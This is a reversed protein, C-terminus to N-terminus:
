EIQWGAKLSQWIEDFQQQEYERLVGFQEDSLNQKAIRLYNDKYDHLATHMKEALFQREETTASAISNATNQMLNSFEQKQELKTLLLTNKTSDSLNNNSLRSYFDNMQHQEYASDKLLDYKKVEEPKLLQAIKRDVEAVMNQQKEIMAKLEADSTFYGVNTTGLIRERETLLAQVKERDQNSLSLSSLLISYKQELVRALNEQQYQNLDDNVNANSNSIPKNSNVVMEAHPNILRNNTTSVKCNPADVIKQEYATQQQAFESQLNQHEIVLSLYAVGLAVLLAYPLYIWIKM